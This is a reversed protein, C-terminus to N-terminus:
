KNQGPPALGAPNQNEAQPILNRMKANQGSETYKQGAPNTCAIPM